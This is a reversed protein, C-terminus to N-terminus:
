VFALMIHCAQWVFAFYFLLILVTILYDNVILPLLLLVTLLGSLLMLARRSVGELLSMVPEQRPHGAPPVAAGAGVVRLRVHEQGIAHVAPRGAGRHRRDARRRAARGA